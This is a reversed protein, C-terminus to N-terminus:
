ALTSIVNALQGMNEVSITVIEHRFLTGTLNRAASTWQVEECEPTFYNWLWHSWLLLALGYIM